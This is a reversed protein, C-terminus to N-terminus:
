ELRDMDANPRPDTLPDRTQPKFTEPIPGCFQAVVDPDIDNPFFNSTPGNWDAWAISGACEYFITPGSVLLNNLDPSFEFRNTMEGSFDRVNVYFEVNPIRKKTKSANNLWATYIIRDVIARPEGDLRVSFEEVDGPAVVFPTLAFREAVRKDTVGEVEETLVMRVSVVSGPRIGSNTAVFYIKDDSSGQYRIEIKSDDPTIAEVAIPIFFSLVSVLAVLLAM